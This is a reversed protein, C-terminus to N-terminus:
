CKSPKAIVSKETMHWLDSLGLLRQDPVLNAPLLGRRLAEVRREIVTPHTRVHRPPESSGVIPAYSDTAPNTRGPDDHTAWASDM